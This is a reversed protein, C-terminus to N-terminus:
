KRGAESTRCVEASVFTLARRPGFRVQVVKGAFEPPFGPAPGVVVDEGRDRLMQAFDEPSTPTRSLKAMRVAIQLDTCGDDRAFLYWSAEEAYVISSLLLFPLLRLLM